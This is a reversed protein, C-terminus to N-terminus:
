KLVSKREYIAAVGGGFGVWFGVFSIIERSTTSYNNAQSFLFGFVVGWFIVIFWQKLNSNKSLLKVQELALEEAMEPSLHYEFKTESNM